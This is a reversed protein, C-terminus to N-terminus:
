KPKKATRRRPKAAPAAEVLKAPKSNAPRRNTIKGLATFLRANPADLDVPDGATLRRTGYKFAGTAYFRKTAM